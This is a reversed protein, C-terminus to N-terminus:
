FLSLVTFDTRLGSSIDYILHVAGCSNALQFNKNCSVSFVYPKHIMILMARKPPPSADNQAYNILDGSGVINQRLSFEVQALANQSYSAQIAFATM